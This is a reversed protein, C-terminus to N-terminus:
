PQVVFNLDELQAYIDEITMDYAKVSDSLEAVEKRLKRVRRDTVLAFVELICILLYAYIM